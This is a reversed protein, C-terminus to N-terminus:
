SAQRSRPPRTLQLELGLAEAIEVVTRMTPNREGASFLRRIVADNTGARRALEAKSLGQRERAHDLQNVIADIADIRARAAEYAARFEPDEMDRAFDRDFATPASRAM